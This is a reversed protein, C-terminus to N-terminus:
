IHARQKLWDYGAVTAVGFAAHEAVPTIAQSARQKWIPPMLKAGPLWGLYGVAWAIVGLIAGELLSQRTKPRAVAYLAGFAMGYGMGLLNAGASQLKQPVHPRMKEPLAEKAKRMMFQGPHENIPPLTGPSVKQHAKLITQIAVTGALGAAAGLALRM